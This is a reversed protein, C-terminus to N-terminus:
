DDYNKRALIDSVLLRKINLPLKNLDIEEGAIVIKNELASVKTSKNYANRAKLEEEFYNKPQSKNLIPKNFENLSATEDVAIRSNFPFDGERAKSGARGVGKVFDDSRKSAQGIPKPLDLYKRIEEFEKDLDTKISMMDKADKKTSVTPTFKYDLAKPEEVKSQKNDNKLKEEDNSPPKLIPRIQNETPKVKADNSKKAKKNKEKKTKSPKFMKAFYAKLSKYNYAIVSFVFLCLFIIIWSTTSM